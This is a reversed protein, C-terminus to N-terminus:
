FADKNTDLICKREVIKKINKHDMGVNQAVQRYNCTKSSALVCVIDKAM